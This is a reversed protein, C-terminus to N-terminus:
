AGDGVEANGRQERVERPLARQGPEPKALQVDPPAVRALQTPLGRRPEPLEKPRKRQYKGLVVIPM